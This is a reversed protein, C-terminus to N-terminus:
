DQFDPHPELDASGHLWHLVFEKGNKVQVQAIVCDLKRGASAAALNEVDADALEHPYGPKDLYAIFAFPQDAGRFNVESPSKFRIIQGPTFPEQEELFRSTNERLRNVQQEETLSIKQYKEGQDMGALLEAIDMYEEGHTTTLDTVIVPKPSLDVGFAGIM